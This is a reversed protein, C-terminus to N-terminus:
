PKEIDLIEANEDRWWEYQKNERTTMSKIRDYEESSMVKWIIDFAAEDIQKLQMFHNKVDSIDVDSDFATKNRIFDYKDVLYFDIKM